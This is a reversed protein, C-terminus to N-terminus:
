FLGDLLMSYNSESRTRTCSFHSFISHFFTHHSHIAVASSFFFLLVCSVLTFYALVICVTYCLSLFIMTLAHLLWKSKWMWIYHIVAAAAAVAVASVDGLVMLM